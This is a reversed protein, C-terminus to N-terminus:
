RSKRPTESHKSYLRKRLQANKKKLNNYNNLLSKFAKAAQYDAKNLNDFSQWACDLENYLVDIFEEAQKLRNRIFKPAYESYPMGLAEIFDETNGSERFVSLATALDICLDSVQPSYYIASPTRFKIQLPNGLPDRLKESFSLEENNPRGEGGEELFNGLMLLLDITLDLCDPLSPNYSGILGAADLLAVKMDTTGEIHCGVLKAVRNSEKDVTM